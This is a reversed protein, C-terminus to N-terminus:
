RERGFPFRKRIREKLPEKAPQSGPATADCDVLRDGDLCIGLSERLAQDYNVFADERAKQAKQGNTNAVPIFVAVGVTGLIISGAAIGLGLNQTEEAEGQRFVVLGLTLAGSSVGGFAIALNTWVRQKREHVVVREIAEATASDAPVLTALDEAHYITTGDALVLPAGPERRKTKRTILTKREAEPRLEEYAALREEYPASRPPVVFSVHPKAKRGEALYQLTTCSSLSLGLLLACAVKPSM